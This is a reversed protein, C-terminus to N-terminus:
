HSNYYAFYRFITSVALNDAQALQELEDYGVAVDLMQRKTHPDKINVAERRVRAAQDRYKQPDLM